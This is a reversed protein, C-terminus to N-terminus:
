TSEDPVRTALYVGCSVILFGLLDTLSLEEGLILWSFFAAMPPVLYLWAVTQSASSRALLYMLISFAGFSVALIQWGIALILSTSISLRMPEVTLLIVLHFVTAAGAQYFNNTSLPIRGSFKKQLLTASTVAVLGAFAWLLGVSYSFDGVSIDVVFVTGLFGLFLGLWQRATVVESFIYGALAGTILPQLCVILAVSGAPVGNLVAHFIGTLYLGHFLVGTVCAEAFGRRGVWLQEGRIFVYALFGLTVVGFRLALATSPSADTVIIKGTVFASSWLVVFLLPLTISVRM